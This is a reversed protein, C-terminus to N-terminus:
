KTITGSLSRLFAVLALKEEPNFRRPRIEADLHPNGRGGESYFDVVQELTALSGDHMYPGTRAVERLTPTKFAGRDEEKGSVAFRGDDTFRVGVWSVGTNHFQEDSFNPGAHCNVCHGKGRFLDLGAKETANLATAQGMTFRDYPSDGSRLTRVYSALAAAVEDARLHTRQELEDKTLALEKPNLIPEIAQLELSEARGDWFFAQGYGRNILAPSNRVGEAGGVGRAVTRGDSFARGPDHCGACALTGDRSLRKDFFLQRGLEIKAATLPNSEPVPMYIDLGLPTHPLAAASALLLLFKM